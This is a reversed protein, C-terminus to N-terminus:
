IGFKKSIFFRFFYKLIVKDDITGLAIYQGDNSADIAPICDM